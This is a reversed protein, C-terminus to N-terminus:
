VVKVVTSLPDVVSSLGKIGTQGANPRFLDFTVQVAGLEPGPDLQRHPVVSCTVRHRHQVYEIPFLAERFYPAGPISQAQISNGQASQTLCM